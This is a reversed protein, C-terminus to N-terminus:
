AATEVRSRDVVSCADPAPGPRRLATRVAAAAAVVVVAALAALASGAGGTLALAVAALIEVVIVARRAPERAAEFREHFRRLREPSTLTAGLVVMSGRVAGFAVCLLLATLPSGTLAALVITLYVGATMIYTALGTGIQWGFGSGYVWARFAGLWDENVQRRRHPVPPGLLRGDLGAALVAAAAAIGYTAATSLALAAVGAALAAALLGTTAGGVLAGVFFWSATWRYRHGRGAEAIPTVTSLMSLGCPSWTSRVASAAAVVLTIVVLATV